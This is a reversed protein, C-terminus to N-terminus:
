AAAKGLALLAILVIAAVQLVRPHPTSIGFGELAPNLTGAELLM